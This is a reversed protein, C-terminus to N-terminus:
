GRFVPGTSDIFEGDGFEYVACVGVVRLAQELAPMLYSPGGILAVKLGSNKALIAIKEARHCVCDNTPLYDFTSLSELRKAEKQTPFEIVGAERQNQTAPKGTLNIITM